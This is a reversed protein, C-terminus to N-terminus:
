RSQLESTHEESRSEAIMNKPRMSMCEFVIADAGGADAVSEIIRPQERLNPQEHHGRIGRETGDPDILRAAKGTTKTVVRWGHYRLAAGSLRTTTTKGRIGGVHIRAPIKAIAKSDAVYGTGLGAVVCALISAIRGRADK